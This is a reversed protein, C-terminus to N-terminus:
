KEGIVTRVINIYFKEPMIRSIFNRASRFLGNELTGMKGLRYSDDCIRKVRKYRNHFFSRFAEEPSKSTILNEAIIMSDEMAMAAGAGLNPTIAHAADGILVINGQYWQKLRIDALDNHILVTDRDILKLFEPAIWGFESFMEKFINHAINRNSDLKPPSNLVGFCYYKNENGVPVMGFRKGRGWMEYAHRRNFDFDGNVIFRWNTYGSYRPKVDGLLISRTKSNIGDAGIVFDFEAVRGSKFAAHVMNGDQTLEHVTDNLFVKTTRIGSALVSHLDPRTIAAAYLDKEFVKDFKLSSIKKGREDTVTMEDIRNGLSEVKDRLGLKQLIKLCNPWLVIGAGVPGWNSAIEVLETEYGARELLIASTLGAIGGGIILGRM